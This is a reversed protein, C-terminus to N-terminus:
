PLAVNPWASCEAMIRVRAIPNTLYFDAVSHLQAKGTATAAESHRRGPAIQDIRMIRTLPSCRRGCNILTM